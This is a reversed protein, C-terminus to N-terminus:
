GFQSLVHCSRGKLVLSLEFVADVYCQFVNVSGDCQWTTLSGSPAVSGRGLVVAM